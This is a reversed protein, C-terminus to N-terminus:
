KDKTGFLGDLAGPVEDPNYKKEEPKIENTLATEAFSDWFAKAVTEQETKKNSLKISKQIDDMIDIENVRSFNFSMLAYILVMLTMVLLVMLVILVYIFISELM